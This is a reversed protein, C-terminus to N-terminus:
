SNQRYLTRYPTLLPFHTIQVQFYPPQSNPCTPNKKTPTHFLWSYPIHSIYLSKTTKAVGMYYVYM